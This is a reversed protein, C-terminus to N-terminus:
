FRYWLMPGLERGANVGAVTVFGGIQVSWQPTINYVFSPQLKTWSVHGFKSSGNTISTFSQLMLLLNPVPRAGMTLDLRWEGPQNGAYFRYAAEADVFSEMGLIDISRGAQGRLELSAARRV